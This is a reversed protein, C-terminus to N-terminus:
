KKGSLRKMKACKGDFLITYMLTRATIDPNNVLTNPQHHGDVQGLM